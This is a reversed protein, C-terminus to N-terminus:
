AAPDDGDGTLCTLSVGIVIVDKELTLRERQRQGTRNPSCIPPWVWVGDNRRELALFKAVIVWLWFRDIGM